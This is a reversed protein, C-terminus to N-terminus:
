RGSSLQHYVRQYDQNRPDLQVARQLAKLASDTNMNRHLAQSLLFYNEATAELAVAQQALSQAQTVQKGTKLYMRALERYGLALEPALSIMRKFASEARSNRGMQLSLSGILMQCTADQPALQAIQECEALAEPLRGLARYKAALRKRTGLDAPVLTVAQELLALILSDQAKTQVLDTAGVSLSALTQRAKLLDEQATFGNGGLAQPTQSRQRFLSHYHQAEQRRGSRTLATALAYYARTWNPDLALTKEYHTVADAFRQSQLFTQGLLYHTRPSQPSYNLEENLVEKARDWQNLSMLTNALSDRIGSRTPQLSLVKEWLVLAQEKNGKEEELIALFTYVDARQPDLKLAREWQAVALVSQGLQRYTNGLLIHSEAEQPFATILGQGLEIAAARLRAVQEEASLGDLQLSLLPLEIRSSIAPSSMPTEANHHEGRFIWLAWIVAAVPIIVWLMYRFRAKGV